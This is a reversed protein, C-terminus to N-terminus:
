ALHGLLEWLNKFELINQQCGLLASLSKLVKKGVFHSLRQKGSYEIQKIVTVVYVSVGRALLIGSACKGRVGRRTKGPMLSQKSTDQAQGRHM